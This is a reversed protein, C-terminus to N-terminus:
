PNESAVFRRRLSVLLGMVPQRDTGSCEHTDFRLTELEFGCATALERVYEPRHMYCGGRAFDISNSIAYNRCDAGSAPFLTFIFNGDDRLCGYAATFIPELDGFHILMAASVIGDYANLHSKMFAVADDQFLHAYTQKKQAVALMAPSIDVGTLTATLDKLQEGVLGTGCGADLIDMRRGSVSKRLEQAVLTHARYDGVRDWTDSKKDYLMRMQAVSAQAPPTGKQAKALLLRAGHADNPDYQICLRYCVEAADVENLDFLLNGLNYRAEVYDEKCKLAREYADIALKPEGKLRLVNALNNHAEAHDPNLDLARRYSVIAEDLRGQEKLAVGLLTHFATEKDNLSIARRLVEIAVDNRGVQHARVAFAYLQDVDGSRLLTQYIEISSPRGSM